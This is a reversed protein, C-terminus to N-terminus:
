PWMSRSSRLSSTPSFHRWYRSSNAKGSPSPRSSAASPSSPSHVSQRLSGHVTELKGVRLPHVKEPQGRQHGSEQGPALQAAAGRQAALQRRDHLPPKHQRRPAGPAQDAGREGEGREAEADQREHLRLRTALHLHRGAPPGRGVHHHHEIHRAAHQGVVRRGGPERAGLRLYAREDVPEVPVPDPKDREGAAGRHLAREGRVVAEKVQDQAASSVRLAARPPVRMPSPSRRATSANPSPPPARTMRSM